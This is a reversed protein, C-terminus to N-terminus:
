GALLYVCGRPGSGIELYRSSYIYLRKICHPAAISIDISLWADADPGEDPDADAAETDAEVYEDVVAAIDQPL